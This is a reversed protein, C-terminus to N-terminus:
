RGFAIKSSTRVIHIIVNVNSVHAIGLQGYPALHFAGAFHGEHRPKPVFSPIAGASQRM